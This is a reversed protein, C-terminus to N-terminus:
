LKMKEINIYQSNPINKIDPYSQSRCNSITNLVFYGNMDQKIDINNFGELAINKNNIEQETILDLSIDNEKYKISEAINRMINIKNIYPDEIENFSEEFNYQNPDILEKGTFLTYFYDKYEDANNENLLKDKNIKKKTKYVKYQKDYLYNIGDQVIKNGKRKYIKTMFEDDSMVSGIYSNNKYVPVIYSSGSDYMSPVGGVAALGMSENVNIIPDDSLNEKIQIMITLLQKFNNDTLRLYNYKGQQQISKEKSLQKERYSIMERNNPNSGGDKIEIVLNYPAYFFDTIWELQNGKYMYDIIPGPGYLDISKIHLIQDMFELFKKEYSGVYDKYGGDKFKYKGSISRAKLMKIQQQPDGLLNEKGTLRKLNARALETAKKNCSMRGCLRDYRWKNENWKTERKCIVCTGHDKHNFHNFIVRAATYKEPIMNKHVRGVHTVLDAKTGHYNCFPCRYQRTSTKMSENLVSNKNSLAKIVELPLQNFDITLEDDKKIEKSRKQVIGIITRHCEHLYYIKIDCNPKDSHRITSFVSNIYYSEDGDKTALAGINAISNKADFNMKSYVGFDKKNVVIGAEKAMYIMNADKRIEKYKLGNYLNIAPDNHKNVSLRNIGQKKAMKLLVTAIGKHRYKPNIELSVVYKSKIDWQIIGVFKSDKLTICIIGKNKPNTRVHKLNPYEIKYKDILEKSSDIFKYNSYVSENNSIINDANYFLM